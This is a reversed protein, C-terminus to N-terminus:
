MTGLSSSPLCSILGGWGISNPRVQALAHPFNKNATLKAEMLVAVVTETISQIIYVSYDSRSDDSVSKMTKTGPTDPAPLKLRTRSSVPTSPQSSSSSSSSSTSFTDNHVDKVKEELRLQLPLHTAKSLNLYMNM